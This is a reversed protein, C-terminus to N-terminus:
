QIYIINNNKKGCIKYNIRKWGRYGSWMMNYHLMHANRVGGDKACTAVLHKAFLALQMAIAYNFDKHSKIQNKKIKKM